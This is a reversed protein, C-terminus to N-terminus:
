DITWLSKILFILRSKFYQRTIYWHNVITLSQYQYKWPSPHDWLYSSWIMWTRVVLFSPPSSLWDGEWGLFFPNLDKWIPLKQRFGAPLHITNRSRNRNIQRFQPVSSSSFRSPSHIPKLSLSLPVSLPFEWHLIMYFTQKQHFKPFDGFWPRLGFWPSNSWFMPSIHTGVEPFQSACGSEACMTTIYGSLVWPPCHYFIPLHNTNFM